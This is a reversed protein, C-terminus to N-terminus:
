TSPGIAELLATLVVRGEQDEDEGGDGGESAASKVQEELVAKLDDLSKSHERLLAEIKRRAGEDEAVMWALVVCCTQLSYLGADMRRSFYEAERIDAYENDDNSQDQLRQRREREVTRDVVALRAAYNAFLDCLRTM